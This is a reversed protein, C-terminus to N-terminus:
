PKIALAPRWGPNVADGSYAGRFAPLYLLGNFDQNWDLYGALFSTDYSVAQLLGAKPYLDLSGLAGMPNVLFSTAAGYAGVVNASQQGGYLPSAAFVVNGTLRQPYAPDGNLLRIGETLAVITNHFVDIKRPLNNHKQIRVARNLHNVFLNDHLAINGEGQFLAEAPNQYFLNGYIQYVDTSGAGTLPWHGVLVNPRASTGTLSNDAKSFVNHRIITTGSTPIGQATARGIQHKIEMNYGLTDYVLNHEILSNVLEATGDPKGFYIGTGARAITVYRVVWNWAKSKTSIGNRGVNPGYGVLKLNELTIHHAYTSEAEAKVGDGALGKGDLQLNRVVVYSTDRFSVTNWLDSGVFLAPSGTAPGEIVICKNAQGNKGHLRLGQTYTGAALLLRDGPLLGAILSKYTTPNAQITRTPALGGCGGLTQDLPLAHAAPALLLVALATRLVARRM